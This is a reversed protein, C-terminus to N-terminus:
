GAKKRKIQVCRARRDRSSRSYADRSAVTDVPRRPAPSFTIIFRLDVPRSLTGRAHHINEADAGRRSRMVSKRARSDISV